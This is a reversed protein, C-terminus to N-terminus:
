QVSVQTADRTSYVDLLQAGLPVTIDVSVSENPPVALRVPQIKAKSRSSWPFLYRYGVRSIRFVYCSSINTFTVTKTRNTSIVQNTNPQVLYQTIIATEEQTSAPSPCDGECSNLLVVSLILFFLPHYNM